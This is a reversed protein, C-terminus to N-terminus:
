SCCQETLLCRATGEGWCDSHMKMGVSALFCNVSGAVILFALPFLSKFSCSVSVSIADTKKTAVCKTLGFQRPNDWPSPSPSHPTLSTLGSEGGEGANVERSCELPRDCTVSCSPFHLLLRPLNLSM